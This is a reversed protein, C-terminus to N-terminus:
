DDNGWTKYLRVSTAGLDALRAVAAGVAADHKAKRRENRRCAMSFPAPHDPFDTSYAKVPLPITAKVTFTVGNQVITGAVVQKEM